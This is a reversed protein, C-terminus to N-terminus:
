QLCQVINFCQGTAAAKEACQIKSTPRSSCFATCQAVAGLPIINCPSNLTQCIKQCTATNGSSVSFTEPGAINNNENSESVLNTPDVFAWSRYSGQGLTVQPSLGICGNPGLSPVSLQRDAPSFPSPQSFRNFYLRLVTSRSSSSGRNCIRMQYTVTTGSPQASFQEIRLDASTTPVFVVRGVINNNENSEKVNDFHDTSAWSVHRGPSLNATTAISVCGGVALGSQFRVQDAGPQRTSPRGPPDFFLALRAAGARASGTNCVRAVFRVSGTPLVTDTFDTIVLDPQGGAITFQAPGGVNNNENSENIRDFRDVFVWSRYSGPPLNTTTVLTTCGGSALAPVSVVRDAPTFPGPASSRNVYLGLLTASSVAGGRNCVRARYSVGSTPTTSASLSVVLDPRGTTRVVFIRPGLVNNNFNSENSSRRRNVYAWSRYTGPRLRASTTALRCSGPPMAAVSISRDASSSSTPASFRNFYIEVRTNASSGSGVNCVRARYSVTTGSQSVSLGVVRLDALGGSRIQFNRPGPINNRESSENIKDDPDIFAWSRYRGPSLTQTVTAARCSGPKLAPTSLSRSRKTTRTPRSSLNFYIALTTASAVSNGRNCITFSYRVRNTGSPIASWSTIQLDPQRGDGRVTVVVPGDVNNTEDSEPVAQNADVMVWSRYTGAAVGSSNSIVSQCDGPSLAPLSVHSDGTTGAKPASSRNNYFHVQTPQSRASGRNCVQAQYELAGPRSSQAVFNRVQLDPATPNRLCSDVSRCTQKHDCALKQLCAIGPDNARNRCRSICAARTIPLRCGTQNFVSAACSQECSPRCPAPGDGPQADGTIIGGDGVNLGPSRGCGSSASVALALSLVTLGIETARPLISLTPGSSKMKGM